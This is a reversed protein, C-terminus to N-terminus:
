GWGMYIQEAGKSRDEHVACQLYDYHLPQLCNQPVSSVGIPSVRATFVYGSVGLFLFQTPKQEAGKPVLLAWLSVMPSKQM